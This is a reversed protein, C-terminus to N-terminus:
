RHQAGATFGATLCGGSKAPDHRALRKNATSQQISKLRLTITPLLWAFQPDETYVHARREHM